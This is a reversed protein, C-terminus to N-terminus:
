TGATSPSRTSSPCPAAPAGATTPRCACSRPRCARSLRVVAADDGRGPDGPDVEVLFVPDTLARAGINVNLYSAGAEAQRVALAQIGPLDSNDFLAKTSKFGPNIREGIITIHFGQSATVTYREHPHQLRHAAPFDEPVRGPHQARCLPLARRTRRSGRARPASALMRQVGLGAANGVQVFREARWRRSCASPSGAAFTSTPASLAPSSSATSRARRCARGPAAATRRRHPDRGQGTAGRARRGPHFERGPGAAAM